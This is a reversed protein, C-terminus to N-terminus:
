GASCPRQRVGPARGDKVLSQERRFREAWANSQDDAMKSTQVTLGGERERPLGLALLIKQVEADPRAALTEYEIRVPKIDYRVFFENWAADDGELDGLLEAIRASDYHVPGSPPTRQRDSGDAGVHWLGSQEAKLLSVAQAVKDRRSVHIYVVPGFIKEFLGATTAGPHLAGLRDAMEGITGWM